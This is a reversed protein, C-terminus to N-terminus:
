IGKLDIDGTDTNARVDSKTESDGVTGVKHKNSWEGTVTAGFDEDVTVEGTTVEIDFDFSSYSPMTVEVSGTTADVNINHSTTTDMDTIILTPDGTTTELEVNGSEPLNDITCNINGTTAKADVECNFGSIDIDGTTTELYPPMNMGTVDIGGTTNVINLKTTDPVTVNFVVQYDRTGIDVQPFDTTITIIGTSADGGVYVDIDNLHDNANELSTGRCKKTYTVTIMDIAGTTVVVDGAKNEMNIRWYDATSYQETHDEEAEVDYV